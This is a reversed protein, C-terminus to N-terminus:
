DQKEGGEPGYFLVWTSFDDSFQEFRHEGGAPVFLLDGTQFPHREEGNAFWGSGRAIVYIEDRTHPRQVDHRDPRYMKVQLTGHEFVFASPIGQKIRAVADLADAISARRGNKSITFNREPKM